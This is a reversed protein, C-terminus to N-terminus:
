CCRLNHGKGQLDIVSTGAHVGGSGKSRCNDHSIPLVVPYGDHEKNKNEQHQPCNAMPKKGMIKSVLKEEGLQLGWWWKIVDKMFVLSLSPCIEDATFCKM